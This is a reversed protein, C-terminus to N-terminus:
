DARSLRVASVFTENEYSGAYLFSDGLHIGHTDGSNWWATDATGPILGVIRGGPESTATPRPSAIPAQLPTETPAPPTVTPTAASTTPSRTYTTRTPTELACGALTLSTILALVACLVMRTPNDPHTSTIPMQRGTMVEHACQQM